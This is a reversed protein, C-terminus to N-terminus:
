DEAPSGEIVSVDSATATVKLLRFGASAFLAVWEERTREQGGPGALMNLDDFKEDGGENRPDLVSEVVLLTGTPGMARGCTRLIAVAREDDWDHLIWKLVYADGGDPVAAFIDGGVVRCRDAVGAARLVPEANAVVHPQDILVGQTAPHKSLVAALFAGQGGAVDVICRFREFDYAALVAAAHHRSLGTM